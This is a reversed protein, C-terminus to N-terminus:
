TSGLRTQVICGQKPGPAQTQGLGLSNTQTKLPNPGNRPRVCGPSSGCWQDPDPLGLWDTVRTEVLKAPLPSLSHTKTTTASIILRISNTLSTMSECGTAWSQSRLRRRRRRLRVITLRFIHRLKKQRKKQINVFHNPDNLLSPRDGFM